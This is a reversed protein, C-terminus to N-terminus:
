SGLSRSQGEVDGRLAHCQGSLSQPHGKGKVVIGASALGGLRAMPDEPLEYSCVVAAKPGGSM